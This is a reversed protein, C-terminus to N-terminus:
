DWHVDMAGKPMRIGKANKVMEANMRDKVKQPTATERAAEYILHNIEKIQLSQPTHFQVEMTVGDPSIINVNLGRYPNKPDWTNKFKGPKLTYGAAKLKEIAGQVHDSYSDEPVELTYRVADGMKSAISEMSPPPEGKAEAKFRDELFDAAIKRKLSGVEKLRFKFGALQAGNGELSQMMASIAPEDAKAKAYIAQAFPEAQAELKEVEPSKVKKPAYKKVLGDMDLRDDEDFLDAQKDNTTSRSGVRAWQGKNGPQGRPQNPDWKLIDELKKAIPDPAEPDEAAERSARWDKAIDYSTTEFFETLLDDRKSMM